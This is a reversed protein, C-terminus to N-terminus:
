EAGQVGDGCSGVVGRLLAKVRDIDDTSSHRLSSCGVFDSYEHLFDIAHDAVHLRAVVTTFGAYVAAAAASRGAVAGITWFPAIAGFASDVRVSADM